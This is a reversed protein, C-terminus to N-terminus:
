AEKTSIDCIDSAQAVVGLWNNGTKKKLDLTMIVYSKGKLKNCYQPCQPIELATSHVATPCASHLWGPVEAMKVKPFTSGKKLKSHSEVM